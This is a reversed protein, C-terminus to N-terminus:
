LRPVYGMHIGQTKDLNGVAGLVHDLGSALPDRRDFELVFDHCMGVHHLRGYHANGIIPPVLPGHRTHHQGISRLHTDLFQGLEKGRSDGLPPKGLAPSKNVFHGLGAHPFEVLLNETGM